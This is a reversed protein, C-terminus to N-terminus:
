NQNLCKSIVTGGGICRTGKYLVAAQGQAIGRENEKLTLIYKNKKINLVCDRLEGGHRFRAKVKERDSIENIANFQDL